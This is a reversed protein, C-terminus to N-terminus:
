YMYMYIKIYSRHERGKGKDSLMIKINTYNIEVLTYYKEM